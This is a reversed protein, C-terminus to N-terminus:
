VRRAASASAAGVIRQRAEAAVAKRDGVSAPDFPALFEIIVPFRRRRKLVRWGNAAAPEDGVWAIDRADAGYDIHVPQVQMPRPPPAVVALLAPKFPLLASGDTTTGEPFIAVPHRADLAARLTDIQTAVGLRDARAVFVTRNISALWGILPWKAVDDQAVFATGTRGGLIPIDLWSLHNVVFLVDHRLARGRVTVDAGCLRAVARLFLRPWPSRARVTRWLAHPVLMIALTLALAAIRAAARVPGM